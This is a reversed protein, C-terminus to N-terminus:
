ICALALATSEVVPDFIGFAGLIMPLFTNFFLILAIVVVISVIINILRKKNEDRQEASEARAMKVGVYVAYISGAVGVLVLLVWLVTSMPVLISSLWGWDGNVGKIYDVVQQWSSLVEALLTSM